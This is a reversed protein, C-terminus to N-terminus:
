TPLGLQPEYLTIMQSSMFWVREFDHRDILEGEFQSDANIESFEPIPAEALWTNGTHHFPSAYSTTGDRFLEVKRIEWREQNIESYIEVPEDAHHHQWKVKLYEM